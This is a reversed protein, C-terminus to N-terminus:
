PSSQARFPSDLESELDVQDFDSVEYINAMPDLMRVVTRASM